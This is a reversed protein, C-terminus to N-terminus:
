PRVPEVLRCIIACRRACRTSAFPTLGIRDQDDGHQGGGGAQQEFNGRNREVLPRGIGVFARGGADGSEHRDRDLGCAPRHQQAQEHHHERQAGSVNREQHENRDGGHGARVKGRQRLAVQLAQQGIGRDGVNAVHQEAQDGSRIVAEVGVAELADQDIQQDVGEHVQARERHDSRQAM